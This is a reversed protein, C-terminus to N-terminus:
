LWTTLAVGLGLYAVGGMVQWFATPNPPPRLGRRLREMPDGAPHATVGYDDREPDAAPGSGIADRSRYGRAMTGLAGLGLNAYGGGRGGGVLLMITGLGLFAYGIADFLGAASFLFILIGGAAAAAVGLAFAKLYVPLRRRLPEPATM